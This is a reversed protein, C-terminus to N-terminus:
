HGIAPAGRSRLRVRPLGASVHLWAVGRRFRAQRHSGRALPLDPDRDPGGAGARRDSARSSPRDPDTRRQSRDAAGPLEAARSARRHSADCRPDGDQHSRGAGHHNKSPRSQVIARAIRNAFREEGFRRIVRALDVEPYENVIEAATLPKSLDMRMDLPGEHRFSFGREPRDLQPSSVGFDFLVGRVSAIGFRELVSSLSAFDARATRVRQSYASLNAGGQALAEDDWDIGVLEISPAAELLAKAHGGRGLTADVVVGGGSLAPLLLEVVRDVLVPNHDM